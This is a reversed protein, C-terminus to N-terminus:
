VGLPPTGRARRRTHAARKPVTRVGVHHDVPRLTSPMTQAPGNPAPTALDLLCIALSLFDLAQLVEYAHWTRTKFESRLGDLGWAQELAQVWRQQQEAVVYAAAPHGVPEGGQLGWRTRYLGSWHTSVLAGALPDLEYVKDVGRGYPGVTEDLPIELFHAPGQAAAAFVPRDDLEAWGDDHHTAAVQLADPAAPVEFRDNGLARM